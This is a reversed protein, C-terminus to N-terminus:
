LKIAITFVPLFPSFILPFGGFGAAGWGGAGRQQGTPLGRGFVGVFLRALCPLPALTLACGAAAAVAAAAAAAATAPTSCCCRCCGCCCGCCGGGSGNTAACVGRRHAFRGLRLSRIPPIPAPLSCPSLSLSLPRRPLSARSLSPRGGGYGGGGGAGAAGASTGGGALPPLVLGAAAGARKPELEPRARLEATEPEAAGSSRSGAATESHGRRRAAGRRGRRRGAVGIHSGADRERTEGSRRTRHSASFARREPQLSRM